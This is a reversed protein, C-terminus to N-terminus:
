EDPKGRATESAGMGIAGFIKRAIPPGKHGVEPKLERGSKVIGKSECVYWVKDRSVVRSDVVGDEQMPDLHYRAGSVTLGLEEAIESTSAFGGDKGRITEKIQDEYM